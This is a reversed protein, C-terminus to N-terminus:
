PDLTEDDAQIRSRRMWRKVDRHTLIWATILHTVLITSSIGVLLWGLLPLVEFFVEWARIIPILTGIVLLVASVCTVFVLGRRTAEGGKLLGLIVIINGVVYLWGNGQGLAIGAIFLATQLAYFLVLLMLKKPLRPSSEITSGPDLNTDLDSSM